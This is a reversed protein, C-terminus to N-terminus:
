LRTSIYIVESNDNEIEEDHKKKRNQEKTYWWFCNEKPWINGTSLYVQVYVFWIIPFSMSSVSKMNFFVVKWIIHMVWYVICCEQNSITVRLLSFMDPIMSDDVQARTEVHITFPRNLFQLSFISRKTVNGGCYLRHGRM